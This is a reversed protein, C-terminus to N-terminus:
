ENEYSSRDRVDGFVEDPDIDLEVLDGASRFEAWAESFTRPGGRPLGHHPERNSHPKKM